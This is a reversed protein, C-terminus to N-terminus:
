HGPELFRLRVLPADLVFPVQVLEGLDGGVHFLIIVLLKGQLAHRVM